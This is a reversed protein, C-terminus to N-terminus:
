GQVLLIDIENDIQSIRLRCWAAVDHNGSAKASHLDIANAYRLFTLWYRYLRTM